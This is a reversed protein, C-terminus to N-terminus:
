KEKKGECSHKDDALSLEADPCACEYSGLTNICDHSCGGNKDACEDVDAPIILIMKTSIFM